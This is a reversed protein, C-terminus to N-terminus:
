AFFGRAQRGYLLALIVSAIVIQVISSVVEGPETLAIVSGIIAIASLITVIIRSVRNGKWIGKAVLAYVLGVVLLIIAVVMGAPGEGGRVLGLVGRALLGIGTLLILIAVVSVGM